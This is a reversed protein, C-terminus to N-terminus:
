AWTFYGHGIIALYVTLLAEIAWVLYESAVVSPNNHWIYHGNIKLKGLSAEKASFGLILLNIGFGLLATTFASSLSVANYLYVHTFGVIVGCAIFGADILELLNVTASIPDGVPNTPGPNPNYKLDMMENFRNAALYILILDLIAVVSLLLAVFGRWAANAAAPRREVYGDKGDM